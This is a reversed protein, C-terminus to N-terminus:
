VCVVLKKSHNVMTTLETESGLGMLSGTWGPVTVKAIYTVDSTEDVNCRVHRSGSSGVSGGFNQGFNPFALM